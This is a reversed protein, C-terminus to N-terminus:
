KVRAYLLGDDGNPFYKKMYGESEFGLMKAWRMAQKSHVSVYMEMRRYELVEFHRVIGKHFHYFAPGIDDRILAWVSARHKEMEYAGACGWVIGDGSILSFSPGATILTHAYTDLNMYAVCWVQDNQLHKLIQDM